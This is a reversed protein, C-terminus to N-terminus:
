FYGLVVGVPGVFIGAARAIMMGSVPDNIIHILKIINEVYGYITITWLALWIFGVSLTITNSTRSYKM